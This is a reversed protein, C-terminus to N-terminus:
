PCASSRAPRSDAACRRSSRRRGRESDVRASAMWSRTSPRWWASTAMVTLLRATRSRSSPLRSRAAASNRRQRTSNTRARPARWGWAIRARALRRATSRSRAAAAVSFDAVWRLFALRVRRHLLVGHRIGLEVQDEASSRDDGALTLSLRIYSNLAAADGGDVIALHAVAGAGSRQLRRAFAVGRPTQQTRADDVGVHVQVGFTVVRALGAPHVVAGASRLRRQRAADG